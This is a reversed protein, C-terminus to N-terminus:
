GEEGSTQAAEKAEGQFANSVEFGAVAEWDAAALAASAILVGMVLNAVNARKLSGEGDRGKAM